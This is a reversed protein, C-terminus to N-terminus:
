IHRRPLRARPRYPIDEAGGVAPQHLRDGTSWSRVVRDCRGVTAIDIQSPSVGFVEVAIVRHGAFHGFRPYPRQGGAYPREGYVAGILQGERRRGFEVAKLDGVDFGSFHQERDGESCHGRTEGVRRGAVADRQRRIFLLQVHDVVHVLHNLDIVDGFDGFPDFRFRQRGDWDGAESSDLAGAGVVAPSAAPQLAGGVPM